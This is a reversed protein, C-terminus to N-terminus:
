HTEQHKFNWSQKRVDQRQWRIVEAEPMNLRHSPPQKVYKSSIQLWYALSMPLNNNIKQSFFFNQANDYSKLFIDSKVYDKLIINGNSDGSYAM